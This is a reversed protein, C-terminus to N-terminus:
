RQESQAELHSSSLEAIVREHHSIAVSIFNRMVSECAKYTALRKYATATREIEEHIQKDTRTSM